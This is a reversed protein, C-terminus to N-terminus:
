SSPSTRSRWTSRSSDWGARLVFYAITLICVIMVLYLYWHAAVGSWHYIGIGLNYSFWPLFLSVFLVLTAIGTIRDGLSWRAVDFKYPPM